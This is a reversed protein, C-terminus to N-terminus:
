AKKFVPLKWITKGSVTASNSCRDNSMPFRETQFTHLFQRARITSLTYVASM